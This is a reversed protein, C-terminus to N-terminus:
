APWRGAVAMPTRPGLHARHSPFSTSWDTWYITNDFVALDYPHHINHAVVISRHLTALDVREIFKYQADAWYLAETAYDLALANPWEMKSQLFAPNRSTGDMAAVEIRPGATDWDSWFLLGRRPHLVLGRPRHLPPGSLNLFACSKGEASCVGLGGVERAGGGVTFYLLGTVWDLAVNGLGIINEVM